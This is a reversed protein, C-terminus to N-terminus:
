KSNARRTQDAMERLAASLDVPYPEIADFRHYPEPLQALERAARDRAETISGAARVREGARMFPELLPRTRPPATEAALGLTDRGDGRFIQKSGPLTQKEASFKATPRHVGDHEVEVLKYVAALSPADHSTALQTGAGFADVPAGGRVLEDIRYEDLDGTAMIRAHTLGAEDLIRRVERSLAAVDGSDLRIGWMPGGLAVANRVGEIPDYTDILHVTQLGLVQQLKAFAESETPFSMVWSHASTGMVPIGWTYGALTNSTGACGGIYAARAGVTGAEATHARRTGFEVVGRGRAARVIRAAKSAVLTQFSITALLYTEPLQTELLGGSVTMVPEGAFLVTGEPVARVDGSFRFERLREFFEPRVRYFQPLRRLYDVEDASFRVSLLYEIAQEIGAAVMYNRNSPLRRISLEFTARDAARGSEFYGAAM